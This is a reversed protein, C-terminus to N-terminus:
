FQGVGRAMMVACFLMGVLLAAQVMSMRAFRQASAADLLKPAGRNAIRHRILQVMPWIELLFILTFLTLKAHFFPNHLYYELGKGPGFLRYLGTPLLVLASIGWVNDARLLWAVARESEHARRLAFGRVLVSPVLLVGFLHFFALLAFGFPSMCFPLYPPVGGIPLPKHTGHASVPLRLM